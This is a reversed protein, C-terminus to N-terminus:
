YELALKRSLNKFERALEERVEDLTEFFPSPCLLSVFFNPIRQRTSVAFGAEEVVCAIQRDRYVLTGNLKPSFIKLFLQRRAYADASGQGSLGRYNLDFNTPVANQMDRSVATMADEFSVGIGEGMNHGIGALM